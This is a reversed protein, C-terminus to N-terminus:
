HQPLRPRIRVSSERTLLGSSQGVSNCAQRLFMKEARREAKRTKGHFGARKMKAAVAVFNRPALPKRKM